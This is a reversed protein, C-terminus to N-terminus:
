KGQREQLRALAAMAPDTALWMQVTIIVASTLCWACSAGIVFPELFTLYTSFLTGFTTMGFIAMTALDSLLGDEPQTFLWAALIAIYGFFGLAAVPIVGFLMAYKSQQVTNCDGVPGCVAEAGTTEVYALYGAVIIGLVALLPIASHVKRLSHDAPQQFIKRGIIVVTFILGILVTISIINGALDNKIKDIVTPKLQNFDFTSTALPAPPSASPVPVTESPDGTATEETSRPTDEPTPEDTPAPIMRALAEELGPIEPWDIGDQALGHEVIGPFQDPIESSGVLVTEGVILAPVGLRNEPINFHDVAAFYFESGIPTGTNIYILQLQDGLLGILPPLEEPQLPTDTPLYTLEVHSNYEEILLPLDETMVKHCHPCSPSYFLIARAVPNQAAAPHVLAFLVLVVLLLLNVMRKM